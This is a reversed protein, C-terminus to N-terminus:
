FFKRKLCSNQTVWPCKLRVEQFEVFQGCLLDRQIKESGIWAVELAQPLALKQETEGSSLTQTFLFLFWYENWLLPLQESSGCERLHKGKQKVIECSILPDLTKSEGRGRQELSLPIM